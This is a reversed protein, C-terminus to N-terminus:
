CTGCSRSSAREFRRGRHRARRPARLSPDPRTTCSTSAPKSRAVFPLMRTWPSLQLDIKGRAVRTLDLLDDILRAELEINRRVMELDERAQGPLTLDGQLMEVAALVPTLPTRLEHSLVALFQDKARDAAEAADKAQKLEIEGHKRETVDQAIGAVRFVEGSEDRIAFGSDTIWRITGDPRSIRYECARTGHEVAAPM